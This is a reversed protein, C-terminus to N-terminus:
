QKNVVMVIGIYGDIIIIISLKSEVSYLTFLFLIFIISNNYEDFLCFFLFDYKTMLQLVEAAKSEDFCDYFKDENHDLMTLKKIEKDLTTMDNLASHSVM